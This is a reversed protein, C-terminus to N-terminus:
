TCCESKYAENPTMFNLCKRPRNNIWNEIDNIQEDSVKAFDTKKPLFWRVIGITNEVTGKEWSHYPNCFYSKTGVHNNVMVHRTNETGNDYTITRKMSKPKKELRRIITSRVEKAERSALKDIMSFRTKRETMIHLASKSQRSVATDAEWHGAELRKGIHEPREDIGVRCPIHVKQHKRSHGKKWRHRHKRILYPIYEKAENYIWQYIAEHSIKQGPHEIQLRGAILEPSWRIALKSGVYEKIEASKLRTIKRSESRREVAREHAKHPLYYGTRIPPGNRHLERAITSKNRGLEKGIEGLSKGSAKLAGILDRERVTLQKYGKSM